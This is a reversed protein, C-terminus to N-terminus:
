QLTVTLKFATSYIPVLQCKWSIFHVKHLAGSTNSQNPSHTLWLRTAMATPNVHKGCKQPALLNPKKPKWPFGRVLGHQNVGSQETPCISSATSYHPFIDPRWLAARNESLFYLNNFAAEYKLRRIYKMYRREFQLISIPSQTNWM